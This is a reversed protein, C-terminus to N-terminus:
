IKAETNVHNIVNAKKNVYYTKRHKKVINKM